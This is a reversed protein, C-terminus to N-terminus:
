GGRSRTARAALAPKTFASKAPGTIRAAIAYREGSAHFHRLLDQPEQTVRVELATSCRRM